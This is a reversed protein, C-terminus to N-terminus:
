ITVKSLKNSKEHLFPKENPVLKSPPLPTHGSTTRQGRRGERGEKTGPRLNLLPYWDYWDAFKRSPSKASTMTSQAFDEPPPAKSFSPPSYLFARQAAAPLTQNNRAKRRARKARWRWLHLPGGTYRQEGHDGGQGDITLVM